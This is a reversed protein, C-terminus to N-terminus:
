MSNSSNLGYKVFCVPFLKSDNPLMGFFLFPASLVTFPSKTQYFATASVLTGWKIVMKPM